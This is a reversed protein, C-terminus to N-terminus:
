LHKHIRLSFLHSDGKFDSRSPLNRAHRVDVFVTPWGSYFGVVNLDSRTFRVAHSM